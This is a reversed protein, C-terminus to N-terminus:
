GCGYDLVKLQRRSRFYDLLFQESLRYRDTLNRRREVEEVWEHGGHERWWATNPRMVM